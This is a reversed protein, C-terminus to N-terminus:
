TFLTDLEDLHAVDARVVDVVGAFAQAAKALKEASRGAIIVSAGEAAFCKAAALGIGRNGGTIVVVKNASRAM